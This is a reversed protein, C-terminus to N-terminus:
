TTSNRGLLYTKFVYPWPISVIPLVVWLFADTMGQAPSGILEGKSWLPYAVIVLWIIKYFVELLLLPIMRVTRFVGILALTAFAAWVSWAMADLSEWAGKHEIIHTWADKGLFVVMLVYIARMLWLNIPPVGDYRKVDATFIQKIRSHM